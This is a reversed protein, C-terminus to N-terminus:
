KVITRLRRYVKHILCLIFNNSFAERGIVYLGYEKIAKDKVHNQHGIYVHALPQDIGHIKTKRSLEMWLLVDEGIRLEPNFLYKQLLERRIVVSPTVISCHFAILPYKNIGRGSRVIEIKDVSTDHRWYSTHSFDWSNKEMMEIQVSLKNKEWQDDSDLFAIYTGKSYKIGYNRAGSPGVNKELKFYRIKESQKVIEDVGANNPTGDNILLIEFNTYTQTLVSDIARVVFEYRKYFPIIVSVKPRITKENM